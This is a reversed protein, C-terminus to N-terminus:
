TMIQRERAHRGWLGALRGGAQAFLEGVREGLSKKARYEIRLLDADKARELLYDDSTKLEDVLRLELARSGLWHEGTAVAEVDLVPRYRAVFQKFLGHIEEVEQRFKERGKDTNEGFLTLTRKYEGAMIQEYDIDHKKLWRNFNPLQALVGISGIVAFPSALIRDAVCAMMYGGSAAVQDIGITLPIGRERLRALQAAALGYAHVMGGASSLRLFVEDRPKAVLLVTSIEERLSAVESAKIDGDFELVFVRGRSEGAVEPKGAKRKALKKKLAKLAGHDLQQAAQVAQEMAEFRDNLREVEIRAPTESKGRAVLLLPIALSVAVAVVVTVAKLAFLGYDILFESM